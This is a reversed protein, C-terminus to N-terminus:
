RHDGPAHRSLVPRSGEAHAVEKAERRTSGRHRDNRNQMPGTAETGNEADGAEEARHDKEARDSEQDGVSERWRRSSGESIAPLSLPSPWSAPQDPHRLGGAM